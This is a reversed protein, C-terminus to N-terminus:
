IKQITYERSGLGISEGYSLQLEGVTHPHLAKFKDPAGELKPDLPRAQNVMDFSAQDLAVPDTSALMGIDAVISADSWQVCDCDPTINFLFNIYCIRKQRGKVVGYAYETMREVFPAMQTEWDISIAKVPCVTMCEFCGICKSIDVHSKHDVLSLAKQPCVKVCRGCGVCIEHNIQVHTDHQARKGRVSAGGMALNKIAGGFGAMEHGKFHSLVVLAPASHIADAIYVEKFHKCNIRVAVDDKGYLGDAIVIPANVTAPSFGHLYAVNMHNVANNRMGSYLTTSDTLFPNAGAARVMDVVRRAFTPNIHTDNGYEGFHLKIGCLDQKKVIKKLNMAECLRDVNSCKNNSETRAHNPAFYVTSAM